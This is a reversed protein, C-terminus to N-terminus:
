RWFKWTLIEASEACGYYDRIQHKEGLGDVATGRFRGCKQHYKGIPGLNVLKGGEPYFTIDVLGEQDSARWPKMLDRADNEFHVEPAPWLAKGVWLCNESWYPDPKQPSHALDLGVLRGAADFGAFNFWRYSLRTAGGPHIKVEDLNAVDRNPNFDIRRGDIDLSGEIPMQAKHNYIFGGKAVPSLLVLPQTQRLDEHWVLEGRVEPKNGEALIDLKVRHFGEELRHVIEVHFDRGHFETVDSWTSNAVRVRNRRAPRDHSFYEGTQRNHGYVVALSALRADMVILGLYWDPHAMGAGVWEILLPPTPWSAGLGKLLRSDLLNMHRPPETFRGFQILGDEVIRTPASEPIARAGQTPPFTFNSSRPGIM